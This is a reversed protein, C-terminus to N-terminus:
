EKDYNDKLNIQKQFNKEVEEKSLNYRRSALDFIKETFINVIKKRDGNPLDYIGFEEAKDQFKVQLARPSSWNIFCSIYDEITLIKEASCIERHNNILWAAFEGAGDENLVSADPFQKRLEDATVKPTRYEACIVLGSSFILSFIFFKSKIM